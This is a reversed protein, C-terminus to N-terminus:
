SGGRDAMGEREIAREIWPLSLRFARIEQFTPIWQRQVISLPDRSAYFMARLRLRKAIYKMRRIHFSNSVFLCTDLGRGRVIELCNEINHVTNRSRTELVLKEAPIGRKTVYERMMDAESRESGVAGGSLIVCRYEHRRYLAAATNLREELLPPISVGETRYGLVILAHAPGEELTAAHMWWAYALPVFLAAALLAGASWVFWM